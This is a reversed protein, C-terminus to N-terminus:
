GDVGGAAAEEAERDRVGHKTVVARLHEAQREIDNALQAVRNFSQEVGAEHVARIARGVSEADNSWDDLRLGTIEEIKRLKEVASRANERLQRREIEIARQVRGEEDRKAESVAKAVAISVVDGDVDPAARRLIAAMLGRSVPRPELAPAKKAVKMRTGDFHLVGWNQPVESAPVMGSPCALYFRDCHDFMPSTKAPNKAERLWDSRSVKIEIGIIEQGTSPWVGVAIADTWTRAKAGTDNSVEYFVAYAPRAFHVRLAAKIMSATIKPLDAPAGSQAAEVLDAM